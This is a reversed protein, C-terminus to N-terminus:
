CFLMLMSVFFNPDMAGLPTHHAGFFWETQISERKQQMITTNKVLLLVNIGDGFIKQM